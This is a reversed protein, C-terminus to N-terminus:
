KKSGAGRGLLTTIQETIFAMRTAEISFVQPGIFGLSFAVASIGYALAHLDVDPAILGQQKYHQLRAVLAPMRKEHVSVRLQNAIKPNILAQSFAVRIFSAHERHKQCGDRLLQAIEAELTKQYPFAAMGEVAGEAAFTEMIAILLGTKGEFYRQILAESVGARKAVERTTAGDFGREAFVQIAAELLARASAERDRRRKAPETKMKTKLPKPSM